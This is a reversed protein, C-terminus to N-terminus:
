ATKRMCSECDENTTHAQGRKHSPIKFLCLAQIRRSFIFCMRSVITKLSSRQLEPGGWSPQEKWEIRSLGLSM